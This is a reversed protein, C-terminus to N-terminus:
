ASCRVRTVRGNESFAIKVHAGCMDETYVAHLASLPELGDPPALTGEWVVDCDVATRVLKIYTAHRNARSPLLRIISVSGLNSSDHMAHTHTHTHFFTPSPCEVWASLVIGFCQSTMAMVVQRLEVLLVVVEQRPVHPLVLHVAGLANAKIERQYATSHAEQSCTSAM